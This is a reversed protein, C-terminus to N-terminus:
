SKIKTRAKEMVNIHVCNFSLMDGNKREGHRYDTNCGHSRRKTHRMGAGRVKGDRKVYKVNTCFEPSLFLIYM